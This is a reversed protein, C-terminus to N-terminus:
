VCVCVCVCVYVCVCVCVCVCVYVCVLFFSVVLINVACWGTISTLTPALSLAKTLATLWRTSTRLSPYRVRTLTCSGQTFHSMLIAFSTRFYPCCFLLSSEQYKIGLQCLLDSWPSLSKLAFCFKNWCCCLYVRVLISSGVGM